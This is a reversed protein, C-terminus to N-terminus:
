LFQYKDVLTFYVAGYQAQVHAILPSWTTIQDLLDKVAFIYDFKAHYAWFCENQMLYIYIKSYGPVLEYLHLHITSDSAFHTFRGSLKFHLQHNGKVSSVKLFSTMVNNISGWKLNM